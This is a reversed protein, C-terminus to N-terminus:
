IGTSNASYIVGRNCKPFPHLHSQRKEELRSSRYASVATKFQICNKNLRKDMLLATVSLTTIPRYKCNKNQKTCKDLHEVHQLMSVAGLLNYLDTSLAQLYLSAHHQPFNHIRQSYSTDRAETKMSWQWTKRASLNSQSLLDKIQLM